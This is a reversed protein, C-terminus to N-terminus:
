EDLLIERVQMIARGLLNQGRYDNRYRWGWIDDTPSDEYIHASRVRSADLAHMFETHQRAKALIVELMVYYCLDKHTSGWDPRLKIGRPGGRKKSEGPGDSEFVFDHDAATTAKMAQYRHESTEYELMEGTWPSPLKVPHKSFNSFVGYRQNPYYFLVPEGEVGDQKLREERTV